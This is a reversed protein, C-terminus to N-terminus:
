GHDDKEHEHKLAVGAWTARTMHKAWIAMDEQAKLDAIDRKEQREREEADEKAILERIAAEIAQLALEIQSPEPEEQAPEDQGHEAGPDERSEPIPQSELAPERPQAQALAAALAVALAAAGAGPRTCHPM